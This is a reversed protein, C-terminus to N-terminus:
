RQIVPLLIKRVTNPRSDDDLYDPTGDNDSDIPNRPNSGVEERDATGDGDSDDDLFNPLNDGDIDGTRELNDPITDGDADDNPGSIRVTAATEMTPAAPALRQGSNGATATWTAVNTTTITLTQTFTTSFVAGPALTHSVNNLLQGLHSDVLSHNTLTVDGTNRVTYCYVITTEVPVKTEDVLTCAPKIGQIGVTKSFTFAAETPETITITVTATDSAGLGDTVKYGFSDSTATDGNHTYVFTGDGNLTLTGHQPQITVTATLTADDPDSDNALVSAAGSNLTSISQGRMVTATDDVAVPLDNVPQITVTVTAINSQKNGDNARYTFHDARSEGGDHTYTFTGDTQLVLTGHQPTAVITAQLEGGLEQFDNSLVSEAGGDLMTLMKGEAVSGQDNQAFPPWTFPETALEINVNQLVTNAAIEIITANVDYGRNDYWEPHYTGGYEQVQLRYKGPQIGLFQYIGSDNTESGRYYQWQYDGNGADTYRYLSLYAPFIPADSSNTVKGHLESLSDLQANIETRLEGDAVTIDTGQEVTAANDYYEEVYQNYLGDVFGVRYTGANLGNLQYHGNSDTETSVTQSWPIGPFDSPSYAYVAIGQLPTGQMNTVTGTIRAREQLAFNITVTSEATVTIDTASELDPADAYFEGVYRQVYNSDFASIRYRGPLLGGAQYNGNEDSYPSHVQTFGNNLTDYRYVNLQIDRIPNDSMDTVNGNITSYRSMTANIATTTVMPSVHVLTVTEPGGVDTYPVGDYYETIYQQSYDGYSVRYAQPNLCCLTYSGDEGTYTSGAYEWSYRDAEALYEARVEINPLPQDTNNTVLGQISGRGELAADINTVTMQYTLTLPTSGAPEHSDAYWEHSYRGYNNDRFWVRYTGAYLSTISYTGTEDTYGYGEDAWTTGFEDIYRRQAVVTINSLPTAQDDTVTGTIISLLDLQANINTRIQETAVTIRTLNGFQANDFYETAYRAPQRTDSFRVQYDGAELGKVDYRGDAGTFAEANAFNSDAGVRINALPAGNPGTVKGQIHAGSSLQGNINATTNNATVTVDTGDEVTAADNYYEPFYQRPYFPPEFYIHYTGPALDSITYNGSEDTYTQGVSQWSIFGTMNIPEYAVVSVNAIPMNDDGIVTGSIAGTVQAQAAPVFQTFLSAFLVAFIVFIGVGVLSIPRQM